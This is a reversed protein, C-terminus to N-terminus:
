PWVSVPAINDTLDTGPSAEHAANSQRQSRHVTLHMTELAPIVAILGIGSNRYQM